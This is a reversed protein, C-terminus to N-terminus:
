WGGTIVTPIAPAVATLTSYAWKGNRDQIRYRITTQGTFGKVPVFRVQTGELIWTGKGPVVVRNGWKGTGAQAIAVSGPKLNSGMAPRSLGVPAYMLPRTSGWGIKQTQPTAKPMPEGVTIFDTAQSCRDQYPAPMCVQYTFSDIGTFGPRPTYTYTGNSNWSVTGNAPSSTQTFVSGAPYTDNAAANVSVPVDMQTTASDNVALPGVIITDTAASCTANNPAALCVQYRFSDVGSFGTRPTYTYSGNPNWAVSGNAPSTVQSFVSGAPYTDNAAANVSVPTNLPTSAMDDVARPAAPAAPAAAGGGGGAPAPAPAPTWVAYLTTDANLTYASGAAVSTGSGNAATNWGALVYGPRSCGSGGAVTVSTGTAVTTAPTTCTGGNGDYTLTVTAPVSWQIAQGDPTNNAVLDATSTDYNAYYYDLRFTVSSYTGAVKVTGAGVGKTTGTSNNAQVTPPAILKISNGGTVQINNNGSVLSLTQGSTVVWDPYLSGGVGSGGGGSAFGGIDNISILWDTVPQSFTYTVTPASSTGYGPCNTITPPNAIGTGAAAATLACMGPARNVWTSGGVSWVATPTYIASTSNGGAWDDYNMSVAYGTSTGSAVNSKSGFNGWAFNTTSNAMAPTITLGGGPYTPYTLTPVGSVAAITGYDYAPTAAQSETTAGRLASLAFPSAAALAVVTALGATSLRHTTRM